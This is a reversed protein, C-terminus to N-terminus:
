EKLSGAPVLYLLRLTARDSVGITSTVAEHYMVSAPDNAHVLGLAHGVEHRMIGTVLTAPMTRAASDRMAIAISARKILYDSGHLRDTVGVRQGDGAPFHDRWRISIDAGASDYVFIFRLPFGAESWEAFVGRALNPYEASWGPENSVPEVYVRLAEAMRDPWRYLVSDQQLLIDEVYTGPALNAVRRRLEAPPEAQSLGRRSIARRTIGQAHQAQTIITDRALRAERQAQRTRTGRVSGTMVAGALLALLAVPILEARLRM